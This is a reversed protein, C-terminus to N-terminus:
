GIVLAILIGLMIGALVEMPTHGLSEKLGKETVESGGKETIEVLRNIVRAQEGAARRVGMADYMVVAAFVFALAFEPSGAGCSQMVGVFLASVMASHASPMGGAGLIREADFKKTIILTLITKIIQASIWGLVASMLIKNHFIHAIVLM